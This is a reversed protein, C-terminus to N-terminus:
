FELVMLDEGFVVEADTRRSVIEIVKDKNEVIEPSVHTLVLKGPSAEEAVRALESPSTHVGEPHPGDLWNCEHILVDCDQALEIVERCPATDSSIVLSKGEHEIRFARTDMSGHLTPTNSVVLEGQQVVQDEKLIITEIALKERLYTFAIDNVGRSWEKVMPPAYLRLPREYGSLWLSQCLTLFDSVHDIHFHSLFVADLTTLDFGLQTLRHLTGSGVDFLAKDNAAEVLIGAQVRNPDPYSTGTGLLTARM